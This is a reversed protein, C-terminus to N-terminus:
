KKDEDTRELEEPAVWAVADNKWVAVPLGM